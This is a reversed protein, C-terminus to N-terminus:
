YKCLATIIKVDYGDSVIDLIGTFGSEGCNAVWVPTHYNMFFDGGKYGTFSAGNASELLSLFETTNLHTGFGYNLALQSYDGRWSDILTPFLSVFDYSVLIEPSEQQIPTLKNILQGLTLTRKM